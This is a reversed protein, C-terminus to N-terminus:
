REDAVNNINYNREGFLVRGLRVMTSGGYEIAIEYDNTMGCSLTDILHRPSAVRRLKEFLLRFEKYYEILKQKDDLNPMVAMLGRLRINDKQEVYDLFGLLDEKNIGGKSLESGMNIEILADITLNHKKAQKDLEDALSQRDLSHVLVVKDIIYKVKNTQLQGIMHWRLNKGSDYKEIIEQVRNEGVDTLLRNKDIFDILECSQTKTAGILVVEDKRGARDKADQIKQLCNKINSEIEEFQM